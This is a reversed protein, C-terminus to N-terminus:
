QTMPYIHAESTAWSTFFGGSICSVRTWNRSQSYGHSFPYAIWELIRLSGQHSLHYLIRRCHLLGSNSGQTPFIGQLLAHCVVGINKGPSNGHVSTGPPSCDMPHFLTPSSQTVLCFVLHVYVRPIKKSNIQLRIRSYESSYYMYSWQVKPLNVKNIPTYDIKDGM